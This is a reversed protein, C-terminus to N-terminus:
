TQWRPVAGLTDRGTPTPELGYPLFVRSRTLQDVIRQLSATPVGAPDGDLAEALARMDGDRPLEERQVIFLVFRPTPLSVAVVAASTELFSRLALELALRRPLFDAAPRAHRRHPYPCAAGRPCIAYYIGNETPVIRTEQLDATLLTFSEIVDTSSAETVALGPRVYRTTAATRIATARALIAPELTSTAASSRVPVVAVTGVSLAVLLLLLKRVARDGVM